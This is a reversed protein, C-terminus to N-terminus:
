VPEFTRLLRGRRLIAMAGRRAASPRCVHCPGPSRARASPSGAAKPTSGTWCVGCALGGGEMRLRAVARLTLEQNKVSTLRAVTLIMYPPQQFRPVPTVIDSLYHATSLVLECDSHIRHKDYCTQGQAFVMLGRCVLREMLDYLYLHLKMPLGLGYKRTVPMCQAEVYWDAIIQCFVPVGRLRCVLAGVVGTQNPIRAHAVDMRGSARWARWLVLPM